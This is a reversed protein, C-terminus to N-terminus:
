AEFAMSKVESLANRVAPICLILITAAAEPVIYTANYIISYIIPNQDGAYDAFFIVGSLFHFIYRGFVGVVYGKIIGNKSNSFIGALGLAGFALPYDLLLQVPGVVFPELILDLFGYAIGTLIGVRTGYMYAILCIFFMRFLTISGGNPLSPLKFISTVVALTIAM